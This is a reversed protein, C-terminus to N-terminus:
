KSQFAKVAREIAVGAQALVLIVAAVATAEAPAKTASLLGFTVAAMALLGIENQLQGPALGAVEDCLSGLAQIFGLVYKVKLRDGLAM